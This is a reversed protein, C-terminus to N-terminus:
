LGASAGHNSPRRATVHLGSAFQSGAYLRDEVYALRWTVLFVGRTILNVLPLPVRGTGGRTRERHWYDVVDHFQGILHFSHDIKEVTLGANWILTLVDRRQYRQIHGVHDHKWRHIPVPRDNRLLRYITRPEDELPVFFHLIGGPRLVRRCERLLAEPEPVHELLDFFVVAGFLDDPHPLAQADAVLYNPPGGAETAEHIATVSLDSGVVDLDPRARALARAYRGAGAGLLLLGDDANGIADLARTLRIEALNRSGPVIEDRGQIKRPDDVDYAREGSGTTM